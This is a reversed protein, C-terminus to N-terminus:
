KEWLYKCGMNIHDLDDIIKKCEKFNKHPFLCSRPVEFTTSEIRGNKKTCQIEKKIKGDKFDKSECRMWLYSVDCFVPIHAETKDNFGIFVFLFVIISIPIVGFLTRALKSEM